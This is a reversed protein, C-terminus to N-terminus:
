LRESPIGPQQQGAPHESKQKLGLNKAGPPWSSLQSLALKFDSKNLDKHLIVELFGTNQLHVLHSSTVLIQMKPNDCAWAATHSGSMM